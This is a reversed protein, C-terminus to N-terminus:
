NMIKELIEISNSICKECVSEKLNNAKYYDQGESTRLNCGLLDKCDTSKHLKLFKENYAQIMEISRSKRDDPQEFKKCAFVSIAMFAGTVAGCTGQLRGMGSGFGTSISLALNKDIKLDSSYASLVSQACNLGSRFEQIAIDNRTM